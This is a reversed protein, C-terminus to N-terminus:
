QLSSLQPLLAAFARGRHSVTRKLDPSMEAFTMGQSPVYFIPDYGFGGSGRPERLIEGTCIGEAQAAISGDPRAIAIVAVFRAARHQENGLATLLRQIRESDTAGYRASYVGPAGDLADVALGSDDAIAWEGLAKAIESAKLRANEAFTTGTEEVELEAPKLSLEWDLGALHQQMEVLKGPNGSAIVLRRM